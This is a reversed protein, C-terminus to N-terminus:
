RKEKAVRPDLFKRLRRAVSGINKTECEWVTLVEWGLVKLEATKKGDREVNGTLKKSWFEVNSAPTTARKCGPHQHWFCGHVFIVKRRSRLVLDPKGPLEKGHLRYRYGMETLARRVAMEASTDKSGVARM